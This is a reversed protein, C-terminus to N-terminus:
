HTYVGRSRGAVHCRRGASPWARGRRTVADEGRTAARERRREAYDEVNHQRARAVGLAGDPVDETIVSGAATYAGDGVTVPAVFSTDVGGHM